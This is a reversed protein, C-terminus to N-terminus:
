VKKEEYLVSRGSGELWKDRQHHASQVSPHRTQPNFETFDLPKASPKGRM